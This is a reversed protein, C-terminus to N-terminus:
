AKEDYGVAHSLQHYVYSNYLCRGLAVDKRGAVM